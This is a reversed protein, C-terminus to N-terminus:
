SLDHRKSEIVIHQEKEFIGLANQTKSINATSIPTKHGIRMLSLRMTQYVPNFYACYEM